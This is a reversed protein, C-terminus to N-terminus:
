RRLTIERSVTVKRQGHPTFAAEVTLREHHAHRLLTRGRASLHIRVRARGAGRVHASVSAVLVKRTRHRKPHGAEHVETVHYWGIVLRGASPARFTVTYGHRLLRAIRAGPGRPSLLRRLDARVTASSVRKVATVARVTPKPAAPVAKAPATAPPASAPPAAAPPPPGVTPPSGSGASGPSPSGGVLALAATAQGLSGDHSAVLTATGQQGDQSRIFGGSVGGYEDFSFPSSAILTASGILSLTVNGGPQPRQNGYRDVARVTFRTADVGDAAISTDDVSVVLTDTSTDSSMTLSTQQVGGVYGEILLEPKTSGNVASFDVIAPAHTLAPYDTTDPTVTSLLAGAVYVKLQDCNSFIMAAAGPGGVAASFDWLFAPAIVAPAAATTQTGYLAAGPKAVRFTDLVGPTKLNHWIRTGGNLSAYDFGCWGLLGAYAPNRQALDHVQAHMKAQLALTAQTDVWRYLPAGDLAGVAESVLYPVGGIPPDLTADVSQNNVSHYDDYAFLQQDWGSLSYDNMAGTTQRTGDYTQAIQDTQRYLAENAPGTSRSSVTTTENLRTAWVIVSPRNRDRVVMDRVNQLVISQFAAAGTSNNVYAWGPPEEWVMLGLEDCADLFYESQPYHSCRVMNCHLESRLIEADRHQVREPAAMGTFPFLQHRNLGFIEYRSGNLYFGDTQFVATRFGTRVAYTDSAGDATVTVSVEYLKPSEPSWLSIGTLPGISVSQQQSGVATVQVQASASGVTTSGDLLAATVTVPGSPVAAADIMLEVDLGPATLVNTPKAFVDSVFVEPVIRLAADRYIGGPQLYDISADTGSLNEPPVNQRTADVKVALVNDGAVIHETLEVSFPLYGGQHSGVATGNLYVTASTMVGQFDAFVRGGSVAAGTLHKRYIWLSEWAAPNWDGWSLETVTHPLAIAQFGSEPYGPAESGAAYVGGFLWNQDLSYSGVGLPQDQTVDAEVEVPGVAAGAAVAAAGLVGARLVARRTFTPGDPM